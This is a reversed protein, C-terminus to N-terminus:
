KRNYAGQPVLPRHYASLGIGHRLMAKGPVPFKGRHNGPVLHRHERQFSILSGLTLVGKVKIEPHGVAQLIGPQRHFKQHGIQRITGHGKHHSAM